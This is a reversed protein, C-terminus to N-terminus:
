YLFIKLPIKLQQKNIIHSHKVKVGGTEKLSWLWGINKPTMIPQPICNQHGCNVGPYITQTLKKIKKSLAVEDINISSMELGSNSTCISTKKKHHKKKKKRKRKDGAPSTPRVNETRETKVLPVSGNNNETRHTDSQISEDNKVTELSANAKEKPQPQQKEPKVDASSSLRHDDADCITRCMCFLDAHEDDEFLTDNQWQEFYDNINKSSAQTSCRSEPIVQSNHRYLAAVNPQKGSCPCSNTPGDQGCKLRKIVSIIKSNLTDSSRSHPGKQTCM